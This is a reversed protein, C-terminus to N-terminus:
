YIFLTCYHNQRLYGIDLVTTCAISCPTIVARQARTLLLPYVKIWRRNGNWKGQYDDWKQGFEGADYKYAKV